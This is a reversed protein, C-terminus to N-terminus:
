RDAIRPRKASANRQIAPGRLARGARRVQPPCRFSSWDKAQEPGARAFGRRRM